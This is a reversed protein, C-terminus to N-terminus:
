SLVYFGADISKLVQELHSLLDDAYKPPQNVFRLQLYLSRLFTVTNYRASADQRAKYIESWPTRGVIRALGDLWAAFDSTRLTDKRLLTLVTYALREDELYLYIHETPTSIKDAIADLISSCGSKHLYRNQALFTFFDATHAVAHAWGKGQVYGRLDQEARLYALGQELWHGVEAETLFPQQNDRELLMNLVLISYSRLFVSNSEQEGLGTDLNLFMQSAIHRMEEASYYGRDIWVSLVDFSPGERVSADSTGLYSLLENTFSQVGYQPPVAYDSDIIRQWFISRDM